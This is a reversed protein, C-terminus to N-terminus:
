ARDFRKGPDPKGPPGTGAGLLLRRDCLAHGDRIVHITAAMRNINFDMGVHLPEGPRITENTHCELRNFNPYVSGSTLNVFPGDIYAEVM